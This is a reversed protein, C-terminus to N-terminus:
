EKPWGLMFEGVVREKWPDLGAMAGFVQDDGTGLWCAALGLKTAVLHLNQLAAGVEKLILSYSLSRYKWSTRGFRATVLLVAPPGVSSERWGYSRALRESGGQEVPISELAHQAHRYLYVGPSPSDGRRVWVWFELPHCAGGSPYPRFAVEYPRDEGAAPLTRQTRVAHSLLESLVEASIGESHYDRRSRRAELTAFLDTELAPAEVGRPGPLPTERGGRSPGDAPIPALVDRFPFTGGLPRDHYGLRSHAHFRLDEAEWMGAAGKDEAFNGQRDPRVLMGGADMLSLMARLPGAEPAIMSAESPSALVQLLAAARPELLTLRAPALPTTMQLAGRSATAVAFRSLRISGSDLDDLIPHFGPTTATLAAWANGDGDVAQYELVQRDELRVLHFYWRTLDGGDAEIREVLEHPPAGAPLRDLCRAESPSVGTLRCATSGSVVVDVQHNSAVLHVGARLKLRLHDITRPV